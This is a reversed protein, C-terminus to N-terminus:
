NIQYEHFQVLSWGSIESQVGGGYRFLAGLISELRSGGEARPRKGGDPWERGKDGRMAEMAEMAEQAEEVNDLGTSVSGTDITCRSTFLLCFSCSLFFSISLNSPSRELGMM